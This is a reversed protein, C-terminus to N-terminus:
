HVIRDAGDGTQARMRSVFSSLTKVAEDLKRLEGVFADMMREIEDLDRRSAQLARAGERQVAAALAAGTVAGARAEESLSPGLAALDAAVRAALDRGVGQRELERRLRLSPEDRRRSTRRTNPSPVKASM